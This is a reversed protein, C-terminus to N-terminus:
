SFFPITRYILPHQFYFPHQCMNPSMASTLLNPEKETDADKIYNSKLFLDFRPSFDLVQDSM